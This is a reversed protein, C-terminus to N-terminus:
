SSLPRKLQAESVDALVIVRGGGSRRAVSVGMGGAGVIVLVERQSSVQGAKKELHHRPNMRRHPGRLAARRRHLSRM